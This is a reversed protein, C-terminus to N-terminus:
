ILHGKSTKKQTVNANKGRWFQVCQFQYKFWWVMYDGGRQWSWVEGEQILCGPEPSGDAAWVVGRFPDRKGCV